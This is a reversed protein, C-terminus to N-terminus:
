HREDAHVVKIIDLGGKSQYDKVLAIKKKVEKACDDAFERTLRPTSSVKSTGAMLSIVTICASVIDGSLMVSTNTAPDLSERTIADMLAKTIKEEYDKDKVELMPM